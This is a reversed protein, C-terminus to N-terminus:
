AAWDELTLGGIRAYHQTNHTVLTMRHRIATAAILLDPDELKAGQQWLVQKIEAFRLMTERDLSVLNADQLFQDCESLNREPAKSRIAGFYLEGVAHGRIVFVCHDTDLLIM